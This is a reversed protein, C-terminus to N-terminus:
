ARHQTLLLQEYLAHYREDMLRGTFLTEYRRRAAQGMTNALMTDNNLQLLATRLAEPNNPPVVLGTKGHQNIYSTATGLDTSLLAKGCMAGELLTVGFAESRLHSPLVLARCLHLLAMKQRDDVRGLFHVTTLKLRTALAKLQQEMPGTGAIVLPITTGKLAELLIPLGKYYRLVGIFLCFGKGLRDRMTALDTASPTPYSAEDLGIPIVTTKARYCQLTVSSDLYNQSTAVIRDMRKLFAHMLPRYLPLWRAQRVIDSHYTLVCPKRPRVLLPLLDAFPWPFHYHIIDAWKALRKFSAFATISFGCSSIEFHQRCRYVTAEPREIIAPDPARSLTFVRFAVDNNVGTLSLQRIVEEIGGQTDPFYTRYVHLVKLM